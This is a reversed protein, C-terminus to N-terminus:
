LQIVLGRKYIDLELEGFSHLLPARGYELTTNIRCLM